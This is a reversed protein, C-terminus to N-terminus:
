STDGLHHKQASIQQATSNNFLLPSHYVKTIKRSFIVEEAQKSPDLNCSIKWKNAWHGVKDLDKNLKQSTNIPEGVVPFMTTDDPFLKVNSGLNDSLDNLYIDFFFLFSFFPCFNFGSARGAKM